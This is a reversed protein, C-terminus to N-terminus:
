AFQNYQIAKLKWNTMCGQDLTVAKEVVQCYADIPKSHDNTNIYRVKKGVDVLPVSPGTIEYYESFGGNESLWRDAQAQLDDHSCPESTIDHTRHRGINEYSFRDYAPVNAMASDSLGFDDDNDYITKGDSDKAYSGDSNKRAHTPVKERSWHAVCRNYTDSENTTYVVDSQYVSMPGTEFTYVCGLDAPAVYPSIHIRGGNTVSLSSNTWECIQRLVKAKNTGAEFFIPVTHTRTQNWLAGDTFWITGGDAEVLERMEQAINYGKPRSFDYVLTDQSHRYLTSYGSVQRDVSHYSADSKSTEVFYTGVVGTFETEGPIQITHYVRVLRNSPVDGHFVFNATSWNDGDLATTIKSENEVATIREGTEQLTFPDVLRFEYTDIRGSKGWDVSM